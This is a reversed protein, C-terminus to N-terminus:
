PTVVAAMKPPACATNIRVSLTRKKKGGDGIEGWQEQAFPWNPLELVMHVEEVDNGLMEQWAEGFYKWSVV